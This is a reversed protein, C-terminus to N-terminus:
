FKTLNSIINNYSKELKQIAGWHSVIKARSHRPTPLISGSYEKCIAVIRDKAKAILELCKMARHLEYEKTGVSKESHLHKYYNSEM